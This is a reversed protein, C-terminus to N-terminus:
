TRRSCCTNRNANPIIRKLIYGLTYKWKRFKTKPKYLGEGCKLGNQSFYARVTHGTEKIHDISIFRHMGVPTYSTKSFGCQECVLNIKILKMKDLKM